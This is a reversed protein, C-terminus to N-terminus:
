VEERLVMGRYSALSPEMAGADAFSYFGDDHGIVLHDLVPIGLLRGAEELRETIRRDEDSPASDGSPHNHLLMIGSANALIATKFVERPHVVSATLTGVSVTHVATVRLKADVCALVFHERDLERMYAFAGAVDEASGLRIYPRLHDHVKLIVEVRYGEIAQSYDM